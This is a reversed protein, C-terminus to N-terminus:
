GAIGFHRPDATMEFHRRDCVRCRCVILDPRLREWPSRNELNRCCRKPQIPRHFLRRVWNMTRYGVM